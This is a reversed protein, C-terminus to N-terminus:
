NQGGEIVMQLLLRVDLVNIAGDESLDYLDLEEQTISGSNVEITKQLLIRVDFVNLKNPSLVLIFLCFKNWFLLLLLKNNLVWVIWSSSAFSSWFSSASFSM